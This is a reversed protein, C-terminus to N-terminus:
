FWPYLELFVVCEQVAVRLLCCPDTEVEVVCHQYPFEVPVAFQPHENVALAAKTGSAVHDPRTVKGLQHVLLAVAQVGLAM